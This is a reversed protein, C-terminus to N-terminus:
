KGDTVYNTVYIDELIQRGCFPCYNMKRPDRTAIEKGDKPIEAEIEFIIAECASCKFGWGMKPNWANACVGTAM